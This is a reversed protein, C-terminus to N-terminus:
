RSYPIPDFYPRLSNLLGERLPLLIGANDLADSLAMYIRKREAPGYIQPAGCTPCSLVPGEYTVNFAPIHPLRVTGELRGRSTASSLNGVQSGCRSCSRNYTTPLASYVGYWCLYYFIEYKSNRIPPQFIDPQGPCAHASLGSFTLRIDPNPVYKSSVGTFTPLEVLQASSDDQRRPSGDTRHRKELEDNLDRRGERVLHVSLSTLSYRLMAFQLAWSYAAVFVASPIIVLPGGQEGTVSLMFTVLYLTLIAAIATLLYILFLRTRAPLSGIPVLYPVIMLPILNSVIYASLRILILTQGDM